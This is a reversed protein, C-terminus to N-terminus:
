SSRGFNVNVWTWSPIEKWSYDGKKVRAPDWRMKTTARQAIGDLVPHVGDIIKIAQPKGDASVRVQMHVRGGVDQNFLSDPYRMPIDKGLTRTQTPARFYNSTLQEHTERAFEDMREETDGGRPLEKVKPAVYEVFLSDVTEPAKRYLKEIGKKAALTMQEDTRAGSAAMMPTSQAVGMTTLSTLDRFAQATDTGPVWWSEGDAQWDSPPGTKIQEGGCGATALAAVLVAAVLAVPPRRATM